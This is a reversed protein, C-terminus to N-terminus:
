DIGARARFLEGTLHGSSGQGASSYNIRGPNAKAYSVFEALSKAPVGPHVVMILPVQAVSAIPALDKQPDFPLKAYTNPNIAMTGDYSMVLTYGDAPSKVAMETGLNGNAGPRNDIVFQQGLSESLKQGMLRALVDTTGGAAFPVVLRVPKSPYPQAIAAIPLLLAILLKKYPLASFRRTVCSREALRPRSIRGWCWCQVIPM